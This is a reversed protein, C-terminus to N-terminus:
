GHVISMRTHQLHAGLAALPVPLVLAALFQSIVLPQALLTICCSWLVLIVGALMAHLLPREPSLAAAIAGAWIYCAAFVAISSAIAGPTTPAAFSLSVQGSYAWSIASFLATSVAGGVGISAAAGLAVAFWSFGVAGVPNASRSCAAVIAITLAILVPYPLVSWFLFRSQEPEHTLRHSLAILGWVLLLGFVIRSLLRLIKM